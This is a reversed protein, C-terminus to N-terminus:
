FDCCKNDSVTVNNRDMIVICLVHVFTHERKCTCNYDKLYNHVCIPSKRVYNHATITESTVFVSYNNIDAFAERLLM